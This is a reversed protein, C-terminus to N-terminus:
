QGTGSDYEFNPEKGKTTVGIVYTLGFWAVRGLVSREYIQTLMPTSVTRQYHQGNFLDSITAVASLAPTLTHKYGLNVINVASVSGQPTLRKDTRSFIIQASDATTPRYDLKAKLNLGTTSKLGPFGLATADIQNYFANGSVSYLLTPFLHGTASFELGASDSRPLNTKTTLTQGNGLYETVDTVSDTNRRYYGTVGYSAGPGEYGYGLDFSQTLQPKLNPNGANLNPPYEHDVFPNLYSPNPRTIRRSAGFSLTSRDSLSRDVHLSPFADAYRSATSVNNTIQLADTTTWETRVGALWAWAGISGQDSLYVAHVRQAYRFQNTLTPDITEVGTVPDVNAGVNDFGYDDQEFAYGVKLSQSKSLPLAYDVDAETIGQDETFSLNNYFTPAPPVFSDNVYDYHERQHSISRHVSFDLSEGPRSFKQSFQLKADYDDEPDHGSTLRRTASTVAGSELTSVDYQTYTRLGGHSLWSGSVALSQRDNPDYESSFSVSPVNRRIRQDAHDQSELVQGTAPDPGIVVSQITRDRYDERFGANLSATFQKSGYNANGGVLWRGGNGLSGTLSASASEKAGRKRTIINIVGAAGEAKFQAPPTTLIEIREINSASISQLVDGANAGQLQTAPKGDILILVNTDGRLSVVGDPDVDVSPIVNLIDSLTGLTSQADEPVTYIKRDIKTEVTLKQGQVIVTEVATSSIDAAAGFLATPVLALLGGSAAIKTISGRVIRKGSLATPRV